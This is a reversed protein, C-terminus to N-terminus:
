YERAKKVCLWALSLGVGAVALQMSMMRGTVLLTEGSSLLALLGFAGLIVTLIYFLVKM